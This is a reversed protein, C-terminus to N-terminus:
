ESCNQNQKIQHIQIIEQMIELIRDSQLISILLDKLEGTSKCEAEYGHCYVRFDRAIDEELVLKVPYYSTKFEFFCIRYRYQPFVPTALAFEYTYVEDGTSGLKKQVNVEETKPTAIGVLSSVTRIYTRIPSNYPEVIGNIINETQESITKSIEEFIKNPPTLDVKSFNLLESLNLKKEDM